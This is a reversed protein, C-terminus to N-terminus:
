FEKELLNLPRKVNPIKNKKFTFILYRLTFIFEYVNDM